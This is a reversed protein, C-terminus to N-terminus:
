LCRQEKASWDELKKVFKVLTVVDDDTLEYESDLKAITKRESGTEIAQEVIANLEREQQLPNFHFIMGENKKEWVRYAADWLLKRLKLKM